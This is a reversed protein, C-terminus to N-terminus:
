RVMELYGHGIISGTSEEMIDVAGEWYQFTVDMLQEDFVANILWSKDQYGMRWGTTYVTGDPAQWSATEQLTIENRSVPIQGGILTTLNGSSYPHANGELDRLQYYMLESGDNFQLSFWDWGSQDKGLASTSWERDLWSTGDIVHQKGDVHVQGATDLRTMSYYYSANGPESSKQSLGSEGQLVPRKQPTLLLSIAFDEEIIELEWPFSDTASFLQWDQIWVRFPSQSAGALGPNERSFIEAKHHQKGTVESIAAHGMWVRDTCWASNDACDNQPRLQSSFFTVQYGFREGEESELNGTLYWWENRFGPHPGHDEPFSFQRAKDARLYGSVNDSALMDAATPQRSTVMEGSESCASLLFFGTLLYRHNM